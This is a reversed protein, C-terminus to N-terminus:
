HKTANDGRMRFADAIDVVGTKTWNRELFSHVSADENPRATSLALAIGSVMGALFDEMCVGPEEIASKLSVVLSTGAADKIRQFCREIAQKTKLDREKFCFRMFEFCEEIDVEAMLKQKERMDEGQKM